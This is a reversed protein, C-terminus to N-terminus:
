YSTKVSTMEMEAVRKKLDGLQKNVDILHLTLEEIKQLLRKNMDGLDIGDQVVEAESPIDPLHKNHKIFQEIQQLSPLQYDDHFVYDAWASQQIKVKRAGITGEVALRFSGPTMTGIGVNGVNNIIMRPTSAAGTRGTELFINSSANAASIHLNSYSEIVNQKRYDTVAESATGTGIYLLSGAIGKNEMRFYTNDSEAATEINLRAVPNITGIGIYGTPKFVMWTDSHSADATTNGGIYAYTMANGNGMVGFSALKGAGNYSIGFERAWSSPFNVDIDIGYPYGGPNTHKIGGGNIHLLASPSSTGIGVNGTSPYLNQSAALLPTLLLTVQLLVVKM